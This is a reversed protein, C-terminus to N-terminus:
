EQGRVFRVDFSFCRLIIFNVFVSDCISDLLVLGESRNCGIIEGFFSFYWRLKCFWIAFLFLYFSAKEVSPTCITRRLLFLSINHLKYYGFRLYFRTSRPAKSQLRVFRVDFFCFYWRLKYYGFWLYFCTSRPRKSQLRVFRVDFSFCRLVIFNICGFRLYFRTSRPAKSQLRVFTRRLLFLSINHLKCVGFRLYFRAWCPMVGSRTCITRRFFM